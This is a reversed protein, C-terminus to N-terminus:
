IVNDVTWENIGELLSISKKKRKQNFQKLIIIIFFINWNFSTKFEFVMSSIYHRKGSMGTFISSFLEKMYPDEKIDEYNPVDKFIKNRCLADFPM